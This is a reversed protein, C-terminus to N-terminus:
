PGAPNETSSTKNGDSSRPYQDAISQREKQYFTYPLSLTDGVVSFPIDVVAFAGAAVFFCKGLVLLHFPPDVFLLGAQEMGQNILKIDGKVGGYHDAGMGSLNNLTTGCGALISFTFLLLSKLIQM